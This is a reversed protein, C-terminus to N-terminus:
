CSVVGKTVAARGSAGISITKSLSIDNDPRCLEFTVPATALVLQGLVDYGFESVVSTTGDVASLSFDKVIAGHTRLLRDNAAEYAGSGNSDFAIVWGADWGSGSVSVLVVGNLTVAESRAYSLASILENAQNVTGSNENFSQLSPAAAAILVAVIILSTLLEIITMGNQSHKLNIGQRTIKTVVDSRRVANNSFNRLSVMSRVFILLLSM